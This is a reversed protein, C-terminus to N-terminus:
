SRRQRKTTNAGAVFQGNATYTSAYTDPDFGDLARTYRAVDPGRDRHSGADAAGCRAASTTFSLGAALLVGAVLGIVFNRM